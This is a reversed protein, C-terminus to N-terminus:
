FRLCNQPNKRGGSKAAVSLTESTEQFRALLKLSSRLAGALDSSCGTFKERSIKSMM